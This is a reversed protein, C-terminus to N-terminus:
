IRRTRFRDRRSRTLSLTLTHLPYSHNERQQKSEERGKALHDTLEKISDRQQDLQEKLRDNEQQLMVKTQLRLKKFGATDQSSPASAAREQLDTLESENEASANCTFSDLKPDSLQAAASRVREWAIPVLTDYHISIM